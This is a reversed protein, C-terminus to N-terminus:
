LSALVHITEILLWFGAFFIAFAITLLVILLFLNFQKFMSDHFNNNENDSMLVFCRESKLLWM